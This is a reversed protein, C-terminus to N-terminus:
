SSSSPASSPDRGKIETIRDRAVALKSEESRIIVRDDTLHVIKGVIGGATVVDDGKRLQKLRERHQQERKRHPRILLFYFIAGIALFQFALM